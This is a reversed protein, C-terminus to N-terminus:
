RDIMATQIQSKGGLGNANFLKIGKNKSKVKRLRTDLTKTHAKHM